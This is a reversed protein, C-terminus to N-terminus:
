DGNSENIQTNPTVTITTQTNASEYENLGDYTCYAIYEGPALNISLKFEGTYDSVVYYTKNQNNTTRALTVSITHGALPNNNAILTGTFNGSSNYTENYKKATLNVPIKHENVILSSILPISKDYITSDTELGNFSSIVRYNGAALKIPLRYEGNYDSVVDYTKSLGNSLRTLKVKIHQGIIAKGENDKLYGIFDYDEGYNHQYNDATLITTIRSTKTNYNYTDEGFDMYNTLGYRFLAVGHAGGDYSAIVDNELQSSSLKTLDDDSKYCQLGTIVKAHPSNRVFYNTTSTIWYTDQKYNGKYVMPIIYDLINSLASLNQGYYKILVPGEPMIAASVILSSNINKVTKTIESAFYTVAETGGPNKYATGPYRVYDLHIGKIGPITAFNAADSLDRELLATNIEGNKLPNEFKGHYCVQMWIHVNLGNANATKVWNTVSTKGFQNIAGYNLLITDINSDKLTQFNVNNMSNGRVWIANHMTNSTITTDTINSSDTAILTTNNDTQTLNTDEANVTNLCLLLFLGILILKKNHKKLFIKM